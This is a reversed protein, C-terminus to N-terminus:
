LVQQSYQFKLGEAKLQELVPQYIDASTPVLVGPTAVQGTLILDAGIAAPLAVTKAMASYGGEEWYEVMSITHKELQGDRKTIDFQHFLCVMDREDIEYKLRAELLACLADLSTKNNALSQDSFMGLWEFAATVRQKADPTHDALHKILAERPQSTEFIAKMYANWTSGKAPKDADLMGLDRFIRMVESFGKYRLTGRFMTQLATRDLGYVDVYKMSDRNPLVEFNFGKYVSTEKAVDLIKGPGINVMHGDILYQAPNMSATLVGRPSWSFKYGLPNSSNEPAPLGGCCSVFGTIKGNSAKVKDIFELALLHDIGPDLGLENLITIGASEAQKSLAELEPSKYSATLMNRKADICVKAVQPHLFAPVFSITIDHNSVLKSLSASDGVDLPSTSCNGRGRALM